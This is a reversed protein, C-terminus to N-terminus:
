GMFVGVPTGTNVRRVRFTCPGDIVLPTNHIGLQKFDFYVGADDKIQVIVVTPGHIKTGTSDKLSLTVRSGDAVTQDSSNAAAADVSLLNTPM